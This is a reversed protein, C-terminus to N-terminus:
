ATNPFNPNEILGFNTSYAAAPAPAPPNAPTAQRAGAAACGTSLVLTLCRLTRMADSRVCIM